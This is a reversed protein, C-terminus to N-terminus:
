NTWDHLGGGPLEREGAATAEPRPVREELACPITVPLMLTDACASLPVDLLWFVGSSADRAWECSELSSRVGGYLAPGERATRTVTGCGAVLPLSALTLRRTLTATM